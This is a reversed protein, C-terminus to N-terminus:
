NEALVIVRDAAALTIQDAKPPNISVGYAAAADEARAAIRYGFAIENRRRASELVAAFPLEVGLAVYDGAPKLYIESGAPDLLDSFVANLHKSEAVQAIMLSILRDSVIFDDARAVEALARDRLDLMESVISFDRKLRSAIDRLHLLTVLTRADARSADLIDSYCLVIIHDFGEVRLGDITVRDTSDGARYVIRQASLEHGLRRIEPEIGPSSAVVTIESGAPVYADLERIISPARRNWGLVLTREPRVPQPSASRMVAEDVAVPGASPHIQDDDAAVVILRDGTEIRTASPPNLRPTGAAPLLGIVSADAFAGLSEGFPRGVLEPQETLYIEDGAFDLLEAYVVSLGSQRCTQATIRSIVEESLILEVEDRGVMRAVDVNTRDRIEAVIHYPEARRDPHNTIALISKIVDADPEDGEPALIVIARASALSVIRLDDVDMPSGSRCVVKTRGTSGVRTRIEGEMEVKDRDALIVISRRGQNENASVIESIVTHIQQSWGLIVTHDREVVRSRGKRLEALKSELGTNLIGILTSIVFIGGLTILFMALLFGATGQDGGMTGPDLTRLLGYRLLTPFDLDESALGTLWVILAVLVILVVSIAFLGLILAITGRSMFEDFRYRVRDRWTVRDM